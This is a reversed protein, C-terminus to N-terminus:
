EASDPNSDSQDNEAAIDRMTMFRESADRIFESMSVGSAAASLRIRKFLSRPLRMYFNSDNRMIATGKRHLAHAIIAIAM